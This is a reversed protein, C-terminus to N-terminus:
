ETSREASDIRLKFAVILLMRQHCVAFCHVDESEMLRTAGHTSLGYLRMEGGHVGRCAPCVERSLLFHDAAHSSVSMACREPHPAATCLWAVSLGRQSQPSAALGLSPSPVPVATELQLRPSSPVPVATPQAVAASPGRDGKILRSQHGQLMKWIYWVGYICVHLYKEM